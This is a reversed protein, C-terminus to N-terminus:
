RILGILGYDIKNTYIAWLQSDVLTMQVKNSLYNGVGVM